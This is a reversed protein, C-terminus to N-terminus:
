ESVLAYERVIKWPASGQQEILAIQSFSALFPASISDTNALANGLAKPNRPHALTLHPQHNNIEVSGLLIERLTQFSELGSICQMIIGHGHFVKPRGFGLDIHCPPSAKLRKEISSLDDLEEDRCLTVHAPILHHQVPDVVM